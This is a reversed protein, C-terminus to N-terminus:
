FDFFFCPRVSEKSFVNKSFGDGSVNLTLGDSSEWKWPLKKTTQEEGKDCMGKRKRKRKKKKKKKELHSM